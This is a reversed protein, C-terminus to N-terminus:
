LNLIKGVATLFAPWEGVESPDYKNKEERPYDESSRSESTGNENKGFSVVKGNDVAVEAQILTQEDPELSQGPMAEIKRYDKRSNEEVMRQTIQQVDEPSMYDPNPRSIEIELRKLTQFDLLRNLTAHSKVHDVELVNFDRRFAPNQGIRDFFQYVSNHGFSGHSGYKEYVFTHTPIHFYFFFPKYNPYLNPNINPASGEPLPEFSEMDFWDSDQDIKSFRALSGTLVDPSSQEDINTIAAHTDGRLRPAFHREHLAIIFTKYLDASHPHLRLNLAGVVITKRRAM